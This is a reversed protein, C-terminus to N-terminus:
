ACVDSHYCFSSFLRNALSTIKDQIGQKVVATHELSLPGGLILSAGATTTGMDHALVSMAWERLIVLVSRLLRLRLNPSPLIAGNSLLQDYISLVPELAGRCAALLARAVDEDGVLEVGSTLREQWLRINLLWMWIYLLLFFTETTSNWADELILKM